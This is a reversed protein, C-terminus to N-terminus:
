SSARSGGAFAALGGTFAVLGGTFAVLDARGSLVATTAVDDEDASDATSHQDILLTTAGLELRAAESVLRRSLATGGGVAVLAAGAKVGRAVSDLATPLRDEDDPALVGLGWATASTGPGPLLPLSGGPLQAVGGSVTVVRKSFRQGAVEIPSELPDAGHVQQWCAHAERVFREDRRRLKAESLSRTFFHYAFQWPPLSAYSRGVHEWWSLSPRASGQIKAVEPQRASEYSALAADVDGPHADLAAVLAVADEMAMKTGSGVSFHATHAADGL